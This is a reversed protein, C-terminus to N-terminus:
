WSLVVHNCPVPRIKSPATSTHLVQGFLSQLSLLSCCIFTAHTMASVGWTSGASARAAFGLALHVGYVPDPRHSLLTQCM